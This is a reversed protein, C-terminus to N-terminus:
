AGVVTLNQALLEDIDGGLPATRMVEDGQSNLACHVKLVVHLALGDIQEIFILQQLESGTRPGRSLLEQGVPLLEVLPDLAAVGRAGDAVIGPELLPRATIM